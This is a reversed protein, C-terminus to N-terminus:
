TTILHIKQKLHNILKFKLFEPNQKEEKKKEMAKENKSILLSHSSSPLIISLIIAQFTKLYLFVIKLSQM